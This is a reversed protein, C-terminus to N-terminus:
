KIHFINRIENYICIYMYIYEYKMEGKMNCLYKIHIGSRKLPAKKVRRKPTYFQIKM